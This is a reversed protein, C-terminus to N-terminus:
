KTFYEKGRINKHIIPLDAKTAEIWNRVADIKELANSDNITTTVEDLLAIIEQPTRCRNIKTKEPPQSM